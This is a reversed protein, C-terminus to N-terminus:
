EETRNGTVEMNATTDWDELADRIELILDTQEYWGGGKHKVLGLVALRKMMPKPVDYGEGDDCTLCFRLAWGKEEETMAQLVDTTM